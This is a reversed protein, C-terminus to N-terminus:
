TASKAIATNFNPAWQVLIQPGSCWGCQNSHAKQVHMSMGICLPMCIRTVHMSTVAQASANPELKGPQKAAKSPCFWRASTGEGVRSRCMCICHVFTGKRRYVPIGQVQSHGADAYMPASHPPCLAPEMCTCTHVCLGCVSGVTM